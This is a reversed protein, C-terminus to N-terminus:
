KSVCDANAQVKDSHCECLAALTAINHEKLEDLSIQSGSLGKVKQGSLRPTRPLLEANHAEINDDLRYCTIQCNRGKRSNTGM